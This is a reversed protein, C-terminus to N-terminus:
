WFDVTGDIVQHLAPFEEKWSRPSVYQGHAPHDSRAVKGVVTLQFFGTM